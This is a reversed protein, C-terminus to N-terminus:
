FETQVVRWRKIGSGASEAVLKSGDVVRERLRVLRSGLRSADPAAGPKTPVLSELAERLEDFGDPAAQGRLRETPYLAGIATKATLGKGDRDLRTWHQLIVALAQKEEDENGEVSPRTRLPDAGGAFVIAAPILAVWPEFSGWAKCGGRPRGAEFFARLLTLAACVLRPREARVWALLDPHRFDERDEPNELPSELRAVVVRRATDGCLVLNNGSALIVSRWHMAPVESKGLIRLEVTDEATLCRDLAGGGFPKIVNDFNVLPPARLAYSGLVKELEEENTPYNMRATTRGTAIISVVDTQLTKGSGRTNADFIFAPVGGRIAPRAVLTLIAAIVTARHEDSRYPFDCFCESLAAYAARADDRTPRAPISPFTTSPIYIFGTETDYGPTSIVTGDPRLAPTEIIGVVPRIGEWQGRHLVAHVVPEAPLTRVPGRARADYKEWKAVASLRERLTASALQRLQPPDTVPGATVGGLMQVLYGDRQYLNADARLAVVAQAVLEHLDPGLEITPRPDEPEAVRLAPRAEGGPARSRSPASPRSM